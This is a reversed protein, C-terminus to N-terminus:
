KEGKKAQQYFYNLSQKTLTKIENESDSIDDTEPCSLWEVEAIHRCALECAKKWTIGDALKKDLEENDKIGYESLTQEITKAFELANSLKEVSEIDYKEMIDELQALKDIPKGWCYAITSCNNLRANTVCVTNEESNLMYRKNDISNKETLREAM